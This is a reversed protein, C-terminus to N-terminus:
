RLEESGQYTKDLEITEVPTTPELHETEDLQSPRTPGVLEVFPVRQFVSHAPAGARAVFLSFTGVPPIRFRLRRFGDPQDAKASEVSLEQSFTTDDSVMRYDTRSQPESGTDAHLLLTFTARKATPLTAVPTREYWGPLYLESTEPDEAAHEVDPEETSDFFLIEVRRNAQSKYNDVGLEEVPFHESFGLARREDDEGAFVLAERLEALGAADEGLEERLAHEYCDFFAGWTLPGVDGDASLDPGSAGLAGKNTNYARQFRRVPEVATARNDDIRGPDCDFTLDDFARSVWSLIQKIDATKHRGHCLAKWAERDGTLLALACTAREESLKQNFDESGESDTHGAVLVRKGRREESFRLATAIMGISTLAEHQKSDPNEGEPLVVASNTRFHADLLEVFTVSPGLASGPSIDHVEIVNQRWKAYETNGAKSNEGPPAPVIGFESDFFFLEVRRDGPDRKEDEPAADLQEGSDDVPFHEGCGHPTAEIDIGDDKLSVGDLAMYETVLQRRTSPGAKGDVTLGRTEQFWRVADEDRRKTAFDPLAVLMMRDEAKGWRKKKDVGTDYFALWADVDDKLYAIVSRARELSLTDNFAAGGKTDAHGVVLLKAPSSAVHLKRLQILGSVATPLLFAKNTNFFFHLRALVSFPVAGLMRVEPSGAAPALVVVPSQHVDTQRDAGEFFELTLSLTYDGPFVDQHLLRGQEDTRGSLSMPGDLTYDRAKHLVKGTKDRLELFISGLPPQLVVRNPVVPKVAIGSIVQGAFVIETTNSEKPARQPRFRQWRPDLAKDVDSSAAVGITASMARVHELLAIGAGNAGVDRTEGGLSFEVEFPGVGQGTEDVFRVEYFTDDTDTRRPSRPLAPPRPAAPPSVIREPVAEVHVRSGRRIERELVDGLTESSRGPAFSGRGPSAVDVVGIASLIAIALRESRGSGTELQSRLLFAAEDLLRQPSTPEGRRRVRLLLTRGM